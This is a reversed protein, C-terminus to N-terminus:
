KREVILQAGRPGFVHKAFVGYVHGCADCAAVYFWAHGGRSKEASAQSTIHEIGVVQCEPCRPSAPQTHEETM